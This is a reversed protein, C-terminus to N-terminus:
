SERVCGTPVAEPPCAAAGPLLLEAFREASMPRGLSYGQMRTCGRAELFRRQAETEVGEAVLDLSLARALDIICTTIRADQVDVTVGAVFARDIKLEDVPLRKLQAMSSYGTGFDDLSVRVGLARLSALARVADNDERLWQSETIELTLGRPPLGTQAMVKRVLPAFSRSQLQQTAVNVSLRPGTGGAGIWRVAHRCAARLVWAGIPELLHLEEALGLFRAPLLTGLRPHGWRLLAEAGFIEGTQVDVQPQYELLFEDRPLAGLLDERLM